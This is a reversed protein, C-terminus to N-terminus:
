QKQKSRFLALIAFGIVAIIVISVWNKPESLASVFTDVTVAPDNIAQTISANSENYCENATQNFLFGEDCTMNGANSQKFKLMVISVIVIVIGLTGWNMVMDNLKNGTGQAM